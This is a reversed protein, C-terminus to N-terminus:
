LLLKREKRLEEEKLEIEFTRLSGLLEDLKITTIDKAEEITTAKYDFRKPLSRLVKSVLKEVSLKNDLAFNENFIDCLRSNFEGITENEEMKLHEFPTTLLQLRQLRVKSTGEFNTELILRADKVDLCTSILKYVDVDVAYFIAHQTKSNFSAEVREEGTQKSEMIINEKEDVPKVLGEKVVDWTKNDISRIFASM